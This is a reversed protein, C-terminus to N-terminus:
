SRPLPKKRELTHVTGDPEQISTHDLQSQLNTRIEALYEQRLAQQEAKEAATLGAPQRSKAALANIRAIKEKTM